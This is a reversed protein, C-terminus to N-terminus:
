SSRRVAPVSSAQLVERCTQITSQAAELGPARLQLLTAEASQRVGQVPSQLEQSAEEFVRLSDGEPELSDSSLALARAERAAAAEGAAM